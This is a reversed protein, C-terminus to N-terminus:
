RRQFLNDRSEEFKFIWQYQIPSWKFSGQSSNRNGKINNLKNRIRYWWVNSWNDKFVRTTSMNIQSSFTLVFIKSQSFMALQFSGGEIKLNSTAFSLKQHLCDSVPSQFITQSNVVSFHALQVFHFQEGCNAVSNVDEWDAWSKM